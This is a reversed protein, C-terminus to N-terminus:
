PGWTGRGLQTRSMDREWSRQVQDQEKWYDDWTDYGEPPPGVGTMEETKTTTECGVLVMSGLAQAVIVAAALSLGSLRKRRM